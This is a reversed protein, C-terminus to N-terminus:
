GPLLNGAALLEDRVRARGRALRSRVTGIPCQLAEAAEEYALGQMDVLVIALRQDEPLQAMVREIAARAERSLVAAEPDPAHEDAWPLEGIQEALAEMSSTPRRASRRRADYCANLVIRLLWARFSSGRFSGIARFASIFADQTADAADEKNRLTRYALNYAAVQHRDALRNFADVDGAQASAIWGPEDTV